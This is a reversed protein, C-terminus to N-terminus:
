IIIKMALSKHTKERELLLRLGIVILGLGRLPILLFPLQLLRVKWIATLM